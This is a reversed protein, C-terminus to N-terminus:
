ESEGRSVPEGSGAELAGDLAAPDLSEPALREAVAEVLGAVHHSVTSFLAADIAHVRGHRLAATLALRPDEVLPRRVDDEEGPSAALFIAEPDWTLIQEVGVRPWGVLGASSAPNEAHLLRLVDDFITGAGSAIAGDWSVVRPPPSELTAAVRERAAGIRRDMAAILEAAAADEGVAFGLTRINDRIAAIGDFRRLRLVPAGAHDLQRLTEPTTFSAVVILDARLSLLRETDHLVTEPVRQAAEVVLSYRPDLALASVAVLRADPLLELLVEDSALTQSVVRAPPDPLELVRGSRDEIRRWAGGGGGGDILRFGARNWGEGSEEAVPSLGDGARACALGVVATVATVVTVATVSSVLGLAPLRWRSASAPSPAGAAAGRRGRFFRPVRSRLTPRGCRQDADIADIADIAVISPAHVSPRRDARSM